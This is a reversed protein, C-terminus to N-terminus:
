KPGRKERWDDPIKSRPTDGWGMASMADLESMPLLGPNLQKAEFAKDPRMASFSSSDVMSFQSLRRSRSQAKMARIM